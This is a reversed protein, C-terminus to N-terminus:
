ITIIRTQTITSLSSSKNASRKLHSFSFQKISLSAASFFAANSRDSSKFFDTKNFSM